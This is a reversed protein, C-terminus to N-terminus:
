AATFFLAALIVLWNVTIAASYIATNQVALFRREDFYGLVAQVLVVGVLVIGASVLVVQYWVLTLVISDFAHSSQSLGSQQLAILILGLFAGSALMAAALWCRLGGQSGRRIARLALYAGTGVLGLTMVGLTMLGPDPLTQGNPPWIPAKAYLFFYSFLLCTTAVAIVLVIHIMTWWGPAITGSTYVPLGHLTAGDGALRKEREVRSPWLWGITAGVTAVTSFALLGILDFLTAVFNLTLTIAALLPWVSPRALHVIAQPEATIASTVLQARWATPSEALGHVVREYEPNGRDLREQEWLPYRSAVIPVVRYGEDPPPSPTAWDMTGADWPNDSPTEGHGLLVSRIANWMFVAVGLALIFAGITSLLNPVDWGL